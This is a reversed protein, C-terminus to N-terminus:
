PTTDSRPQGTSPDRTPDVIPVSRNEPVGNPHALSPDYDDAGTDVDPDLRDAERLRDEQRAQEVQAGQQAELARAKAKEAELRVRDAELAAQRAQLDSDQVTAGQTAADTRLEQARARDAELREQKKRGSARIAVFAIIAILAIAVVILLILVTTNM